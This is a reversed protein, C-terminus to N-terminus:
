RRLDEMLSVLNRYATSHADQASAPLEDMFARSISYPWNVTKGAMAQVLDTVTGSSKEAM